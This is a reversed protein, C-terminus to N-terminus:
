RSCTRRCTGNNEGGRGAQSDLKARLANGLGAAGAGASWADPPGVRQLQMRLLVPQDLRDGREHGASGPLACTRRAQATNANPHLWHSAQM